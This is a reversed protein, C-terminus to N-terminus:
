RHDLEGEVPEYQPIYSSGYYSLAEHLSEEIDNDGYKEIYWTVVVQALADARQSNLGNMSVDWMIKGRELDAFNLLELGKRGAAIRDSVSSLRGMGAIMHRLAIIPIHTLAEADCYLLSIPNMEELMELYVDDHYKEYGRVLEDALNNVHSQETEGAALMFLHPWRYLLEYFPVRDDLENMISWTFFHLQYKEGKYAPKKPVVIYLPGRIIYHEFRNKDDTSATCWKTGRGLICSEETTIPNYVKIDDTELIPVHHGAQNDVAQDVFPALADELGPLLRGKRTCSVLGCYNNIDRQNTWPQGAKGKSLRSQVREFLQLAPLASSLLDEYQNIGGSLYSRVLWELYIAKRGSPDAEIFAPPLTTLDHVATHEAPYSRDRQLKEILLGKHTNWLTKPNAGGGRQM